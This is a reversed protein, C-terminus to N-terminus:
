KTNTPTGRDLLDRSAQYIAPGSGDGSKFWKVWEALLEAEPSKYQVFIRDYSIPFLRGFVEKFADGYVKTEHQAAEHSRQFIINILSMAPLQIRGRVYLAFAPLVLRAQERAVGAAIMADYTIFCEKVTKLYMTTFHKSERAGFVGDSGQHNRASQKRWVDPLYLRDRDYAHYRGSGLDPSMWRHRLIHWWVVGPANMNLWIVPQEFPSTHSPDAKWLYRILAADLATSRSIDDADARAGALVAHDPEMSVRPMYDIVEVYGNDLCPIRIEPEGIRAKGLETDLTEVDEILVGLQERSSLLRFLAARIAESNM